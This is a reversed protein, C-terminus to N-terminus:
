RARRAILGSGLHPGIWAGDKLVEVVFGAEELLDIKQDNWSGVKTTFCPWEKPWFEALKSPEEIPFAQVEFRDSGIGEGLLCKTIIQVRQDFSFPNAADTFRHGSPEIGAQLVASIRTIGIHVVDARELAALVYALHGNHFPQFRGHVSAHPIM